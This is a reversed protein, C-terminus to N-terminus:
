RISGSSSMAKRSPWATRRLSSSRCTAGGTTPVTLPVSRVAKVEGRVQLYDIFEGKTVATTPVDAADGRGFAGSVGAIAVVIALGVVSPSSRASTIEGCTAAGDNGAGSRIRCDSRLREDRRAHRHAVPRQGGDLVRVSVNDNERVVADRPVVIVNDKRELEVDVAASLDPMLKPHSGQISVIAVFNRVRDDAHEDHWGPRGARRSGQLASGSLRRAFDAGAPWGAPRPRRGSQGEGAGADGGSRRGAHDAHRSASGRGGPDRGAARRALGDTAGGRGSDAVQRGDADANDEASQM